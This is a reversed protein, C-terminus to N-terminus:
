LASEIESHCRDMLPALAHKGTTADPEIVSHITLTITGPMPLYRWRPMVEFAGRITIPVVPMNFEDALLFAGRKFRKMKGDWSRAGEPFVVLSMGKGLVKEAEQMTHRTAAPTSTDVFIQKSWVCAWGVFPIRRLSAKMMWRFNHGLWGFLSFIDYASQHNAVFVYDRKPDINERGTVRVRVFNLYCFLRAWVIEPYYGMAKGFGLASGAVTTVATIITTAAILPCMILIQYIRYLLTLMDSPKFRTLSSLTLFKKQFKNSFIKM